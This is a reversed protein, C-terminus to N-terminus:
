LGQELKKEVDNLMKDTSPGKKRKIVRKKKPTPKDVPAFQDEPKVPDADKFLKEDYKEGGYDFKDSKDPPASFREDEAPDSGFDGSSGEENPFFMGLNILAGVSATLGAAYEEGNFTQSLGLWASWDRNHMGVEGFVEKSSPNVSFYKLSGANTRALVLERQTRDDSSEVLTEFGRFGGDIFWMEPRYEVALTWPVLGARGEDQYKYGLYGYGRIAGIKKAVWAGAQLAMAGEGTIIDQTSDSVRQLPYIFKLEPVIWAPRRMLWYQAEGSLESMAFGDNTQSVDEATAKSALLSGLLHWQNDLDYSGGFRTLINKYSGGNPLDKFAGGSSSYNASSNFYDLTGMAQVRQRRPPKPLTQASVLNFVIFLSFFSTLM